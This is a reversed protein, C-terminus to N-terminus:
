FKSKEKFQSTLALHILLIIVKMLAFGIEGDCRRFSALHQQKYHDSRVAVGLKSVSICTM